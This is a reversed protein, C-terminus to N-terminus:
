PTIGVKQEIVELRDSHDSLQGNILTHEEDHTNYKGILWDLKELIDQIKQDFYKKTVLNNDDTM